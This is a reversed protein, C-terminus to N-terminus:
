SHIQGEHSEKAVTLEPKESEKQKALEERRKEKCEQDMMWTASNSYHKWIYKGIESLSSTNESNEIHHVYGCFVERLTDDLPVDLSETVMFLLAEIGDKTIPLKIPQKLSRLNEYYEREKRSTSEYLDKRTSKEM